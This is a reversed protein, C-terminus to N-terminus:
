HKETALNSAAKEGFEDTSRFMLGHNRRLDDYGSKGYITILNQIHQSKQDSDYYFVLIQKAMSFIDTIIDKDTIDLSHGIVYVCPKDKKKM